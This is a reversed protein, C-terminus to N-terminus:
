TLRPTIPGPRIVTLQGGKVAVVTSVPRRRLRRAPIIPVATGLSRRVAVVTYCARSGSRNASTATLPAGVLRCLRQAVASRPVRVGIRGSRSLAHHALRPRPRALVTLPGPWYRKALRQELPSLSFFGRVQKLDAALLAIPKNAARRKLAKVHEVAAANRADAALAYATDTPIVVAGGRRLRRAAATVTIRELDRRPM